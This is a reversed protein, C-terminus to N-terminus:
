FLPNFVSIRVRLQQGVWHAKSIEVFNNLQIADWHSSGQGLAQSTKTKVGNVLFM